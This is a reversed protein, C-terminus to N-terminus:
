VLARAKQLALLRMLDNRLFKIWRREFHFVANDSILRVDCSYADDPNKGKCDAKKGPVMGCKAKCLDDICDQIALYLKQPKFPSMYNESIMQINNQNMERRASETFRDSILIGKDYREEKMTEVMQKITDVSVADSKSKPETIVRLLIKEGSDIDSATFDTGEDWRQEGKCEYGRVAMVLEAKLKMSM